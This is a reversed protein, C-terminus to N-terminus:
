ANKSILIFLFDGYSWILTGFIVLLHAYREINSGNLNDTIANDQENMTIMGNRKLVNRLYTGMSLQYELVAGSLVM